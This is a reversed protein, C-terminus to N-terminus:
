YLTFHRVAQEIRNRRIEANTVTKKIMNSTQEEDLKRIPQGPM